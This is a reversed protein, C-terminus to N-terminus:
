FYKKKKKKTTQSFANIDIEADLFPIRKPNRTIKLNKVSVLVPSKELKELFLLLTEYECTFNMRFILATVNSVKKYQQSSSKDLNLRIEKIDISTAIKNLEDIAELPLTVEQPLKKGLSVEESRLSAENFGEILKKAELAERERRKYGAREVGLHAYIGGLFILAIVLGIDIIAVVIVSLNILKFKKM